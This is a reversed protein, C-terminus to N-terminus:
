RSWASVRVLQNIPFTATVTKTAPNATTNDIQDDIVISNGSQPTLVIRIPVSAGFNRAQVTVQQSPNTGFPLQVLVSTPTGEAISTGAASTIDLRPQNPPFVILTSGVAATNGTYTMALNQGSPDTPEYKYISDIRIRGAGGWSTDFCAVDLTGNGYVRPAVLRIAGGSGSNYNGGQKGSRAKVLGTVVIKTNSAILIAGGGGGGGGTPLGDIGGGGSGGILPILTSSGYLDGANPNQYSTKIAGFTGYSGSGAGGPPNPINTGHKGGGPGLGDGGPSSADGGTYGSSGGDFGGPGSQGGTFLAVPSKGSVDITGVISVDGQALLYVPTNLANRTFTLTVGTAINITTYNFIGSPPLQLTTNETVNLAGDAGTSGSDFGQAAQAPLTASFLALLLIAPITLKKM